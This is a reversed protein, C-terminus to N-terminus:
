RQKAWGITTSGPISRGRCCRRTSRRPARWRCGCGLCRIVRRKGGRGHLVSTEIWYRQRQWAYTPLDVRRGGAAYFRELRLSLRVCSASGGIVADLAREPRERHLSGVVTGAVGCDDVLEELAPLLVPHPSMEVFTEYGERLLGEVVDALQVPQRLNDVWYAASLEGDGIARGTVTSRM